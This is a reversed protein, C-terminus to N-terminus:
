KLFIVKNIYVLYKTLFNGFPINCFILLLFKIKKRKIKQLIKSAKLNNGELLHGICEEVYYKERFHYLSKMLKVDKFYLNIIKKEFFKKEIVFKLYANNSTSSHHARWYSLAESCYRIKFVKSM